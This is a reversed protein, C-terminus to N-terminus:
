TQRSWINEMCDANDTLKYKYWVISVVTSKKSNEFIDSVGDSSM